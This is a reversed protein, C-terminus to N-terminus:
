YKTNFSSIVYRSNVVSVGGNEPRVNHCFNHNLRRVCKWVAGGGHAIVWCFSSDVSSSIVAVALGASAASASNPVPVQQLGSFVSM